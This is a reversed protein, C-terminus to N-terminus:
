KPVARMATPSAGLTASLTGSGRLMDLWKNALNTASLGAAM